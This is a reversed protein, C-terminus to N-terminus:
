TARAAIVLRQQSPPTSERDPVSSFTEISGLGAQELLYQLDPWTTIAYEHEKEVQCSAGNLEEIAYTECTTFTAAAYDIAHQRALRFLLRGPGCGADLVTPADRIGYRVRLWSLFDVIPRPDSDFLRYLFAPDTFTANM